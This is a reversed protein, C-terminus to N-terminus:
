NKNQRLTKNMISGVPAVYIKGLYELLFKTSGPLYSIFKGTIRSGSLSVAVEQGKTMGM